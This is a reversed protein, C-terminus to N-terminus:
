RAEKDGLLHQIEDGMEAGNLPVGNFLRWLEWGLTVTEMMVFGSARVGQRLYRPGPWTGDPVLLVRFKGEASAITDVLAVKARFAGIAVPPWGPVQVAPWGAFELRAPAGPHILAVDQGSVWIEAALEQTDPALVLLPDGPKVVLGGEGSLVRVVTGDRPATIGQSSQRAVGSQSRLLQSLAKAVEMELKAVEIREREWDKRAAIGERYLKEQRALNIRGTALAQQAAALARQSAEVDVELREALQVDIDSLSVLPDGKRVRSGERVHWERIFGGVPAHIEQFRENPNLPVVRGVGSSYQRWPLLMSLTVAIFLAAMWKAVPPVWSPPTLLKDM